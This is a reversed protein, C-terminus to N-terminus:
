KVRRLIWLMRQNGEDAVNVSKFEAPRRDVGFSQCLKLDDGKLEYIGLQTQGKAPGETAVTDLVGPKAAPDLRYKGVTITKGAAKFTFIGDAFILVADKLQDDPLKKGGHECSIVKWTGQIAKGDDATADQHAFATITATLFGLFVAVVRQM